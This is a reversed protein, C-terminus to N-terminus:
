AEEAGAVKPYKFLYLKTTARTIATYTWRLAERLYHADEESKPEFLFPEFAVIVHEWQGGQAKHGTIAYALKLQLANLYPDGRLSRKNPLEGRDQLEAVRAEYVADREAKTLAASKSTLLDLPVPAHLLIEAGRTDAGFAIEAELWQLGGLEHESSPYVQRVVGSEGNAILHLQGERQFYYNKVAMVRDGAMLPEPEHYLENRVAQNFEAAVRNSHTLVMVREPAEQEYLMTYSELVEDPAELVQVDASPTLPPLEAMEQQTLAERLATANALIGSELAQRKVARMNVATVRLRLNESLYQKSLAPSRLTGVPPLQAPDGVLLVRAYADRRFIFRLTDKLLGDSEGLGGSEDGLMSAEDIIYVTGKAAKNPRLTFRLRGGEDQGTRYITQHITAAKLGTTREAVKAARGTPAMLRM